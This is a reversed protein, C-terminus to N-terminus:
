SENKEERAAAIYGEKLSLLKVRTVNNLLSDPGQFCVGIYNSTFGKLLEKKNRKGEVLVPYSKGLQSKYFVKKKRESLNRLIAARSQKTKKTIQDGFGAAATGPRISYPFVHLYSFNLTKLFAVSNAFHVDTEGPFGVLIDIGLAGDPLIQNFKDIIQRFQGTTYKRNMRSLIEDDGSQLPIHLHPQINDRSSMLSLLHDPIEGPELSSIRYSVKPTVLSLEDLLSVFNDGPNLDKGYLGLHIGTLVIERHGEAAFIKAQEIVERRPLSRSPGRTSPVICYTCYSECGDQIRLYARSRDGFRRVPLRCIDKAEKISGLLIQSGSETQELTNQVLSQKRSNGVISYNRGQLEKERSLEKVGIEVFCGTIIIKAGPNARAARRVAQRSQAGARATVACSNIIIINPNDKLTVPHYGADEFGTRFSASEYQNVKCGLTIISIKKM